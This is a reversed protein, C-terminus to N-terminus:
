FVIESCVNIKRSFFIPIQYFHHWLGFNCPYFYDSILQGFVGLCRPLVWTIWFHLLSIHLFIHPSCCVCFFFTETLNVKYFLDNQVAVLSLVECIMDRYPFFYPIVFSTLISLLPEHFKERELDKRVITQFAHLAIM